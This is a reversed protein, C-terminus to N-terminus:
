LSSIGQHTKMLDREIITSIKLTSVWIFLCLTSVLLKNVERKHVESGIAAQPLAAIKTGRKGQKLTLLFLSLKSFRGIVKSPESLSFPSSTFGM